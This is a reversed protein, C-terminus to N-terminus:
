ILLNYVESTWYYESMLIDLAPPLAGVHSYLQKKITARPANCGVLTVCARLANSGDYIDM